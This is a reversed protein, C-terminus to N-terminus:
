LGGHPVRGQQVLEMSCNTVCKVSMPPAV